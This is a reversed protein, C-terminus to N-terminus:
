QDARRHLPVSFEVQQCRRDSSYGKNEYKATHLWMGQVPSYATASITASAWTLDILTVTKRFPRIVDECSNGERVFSAKGQDDTVLHTIGQELGEEQGEAILEISAHPIPEGSEADTVHFVIELDRSALAYTTQCFSFLCPLLAAGAAVFVIM